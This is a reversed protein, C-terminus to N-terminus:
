HKYEDLIWSAIQREATSAPLFDIVNQLFLVGTQQRGAKILGIALGLSAKAKEIGDKAASVQNVSLTEQVPDQLFRLIQWNLGDRKLKTEIRISYAQLAAKDGGKFLALGALLLSGENELQPDYSKEFWQSAAKWDEIKWAALGL